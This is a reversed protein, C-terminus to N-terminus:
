SSQGSSRAEERAPDKAEKIPKKCSEDISHLYVELESMIGGDDDFECDEPDCPLEVEYGLERKIADRAEEWEDPYIGVLNITGDGNDVIDGVIIGYDDLVDEVKNCADDNWDEKLDKSKCAEEVPEDLIAGDEDLNLDKMKEFEDLYMDAIREPSDLKSVAMDTDWTDGTETDYPMNWDFWYDDQLSSSNVALKAGVVYKGSPDTAYDAVDNDWDEASGTWGIVLHLGNPSGLDFAWTGMGGDKLDELADGIFKVLANKDVAETLKKNANKREKLSEEIDSGADHWMKRAKEWVSDGKHRNFLDEVEKNIKEEWGEGKGFYKNIIKDIYEWADNPVKITEESENVLSKKNM